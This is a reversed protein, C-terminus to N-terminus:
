RGGQGGVWAQRWAGDQRTYIEFQENEYGTVEIVVEDTGDHDLDLQDV